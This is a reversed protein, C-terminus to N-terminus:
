HPLVQLALDHVVLVNVRADRQRRVLELRTGGGCGPADEGRKLMAMRTTAEPVSKYVLRKVSPVKRWYGEFAEMVLEVGPTNSVFKYPGLGVPHKRFGDVGVQEIYKKPVIWGAGSVFTGYFTM